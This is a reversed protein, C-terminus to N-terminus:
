QRKCADPLMVVINEFLPILFILHGAEFQLPNTLGLPLQHNMLQSM